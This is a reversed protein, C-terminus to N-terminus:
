TQIGRHRKYHCPDAIKSYGKRWQCLCAPLRNDSIYKGYHILIQYKTVRHPISGGYRAFSYLSLSEHGNYAGTVSHLPTGIRVSRFMQFKESNSVYLITVLVCVFYSYCVSSGRLPKFRNNDRIKRSPIPNYLTQCIFRDYVVMM